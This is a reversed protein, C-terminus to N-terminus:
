LDSQSLLFYHIYFKMLNTCFLKREELDFQLTM